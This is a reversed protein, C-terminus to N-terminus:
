RYLALTVPMTNIFPETPLTVWKAKWRLMNFFWKIPFVMKSPLNLLEKQSSFLLISQLPLWLPPLSVLLRHLLSHHGPHPHHHHHHSHPCLFTSLNPGHGMKRKNSTTSFSTLIAPNICPPVMSYPSALPTLWPDWKPYALNAVGTQNDVHTVPWFIRSDM